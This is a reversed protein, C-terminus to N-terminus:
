VFIGGPPLTPDLDGHVEEGLQEDRIQEAVEEAKEAAEAHDRIKVVGAQEGPRRNTVVTDATLRAAAQASLKTPTFSAATELRESSAASGRASFTALTVGKIITVSM